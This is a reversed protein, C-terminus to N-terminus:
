TAVRGCEGCAGSHEPDGGRGGCRSCEWFPSFPQSYYVGKGHADQLAADVLRFVRPEDIDMDRGFELSVACMAKLLAPGARMARVTAEDFLSRAQDWFVAEAPTV